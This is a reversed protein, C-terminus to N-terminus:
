YPVQSTYEIPKQKRYPKKVKWEFKLNIIRSHPKCLGSVVDVLGRNNTSLKTQSIQSYSNNLSNIASHFVLLCAYIDMDMNSM